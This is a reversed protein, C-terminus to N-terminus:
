NMKEKIREFTPKNLVDWKNLSSPLPKQRRYYTGDDMILKNRISKLGVPATKPFSTEKVKNDRYSADRNFKYIFEKSPWKYTKWSGKHKLDHNMM